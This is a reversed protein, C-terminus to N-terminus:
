NKSIKTVDENLLEQNETILIKNQEMHSQELRALSSVLKSIAECDKEPTEKIMDGETIDGGAEAELFCIKYQSYNAKFSKM